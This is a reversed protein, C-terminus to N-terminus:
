HMTFMLRDSTPKKKAKTKTKTKKKDLHKVHLNYPKNQFETLTNIILATYTINLISRWLSSIMRYIQYLTWTQQWARCLKQIVISIAIKPNTM